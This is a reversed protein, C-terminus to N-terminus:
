YLKASQYSLSNVMEKWEDSYDVVKFGYAGPACSRVLKLKLEASMGDGVKLVCIGMDGPRLNSEGTAKLGNLSADIIKLPVVKGKSLTLTGQCHVPFRIESRERVRGTVRPLPLHEKLDTQHFLHSLLELEYDDLHVLPTSGGFFLRCLDTDIGGHFARSFKTKPFHFGDHQTETYYRYLDRDAGKGSYIKRYRSHAAKIDLVEGLAPNGEVFDYKKTTFKLRKFLLIAEYFPAHRPNVAAFLYDLGLYKDAYEWMFKTLPFLVRGPSRRYDRAVALASIEACRHARPFLSRRPCLKDIPLGFAGEQVISLTGITQDGHKAIIVTTTPLLHYKTVRMKLMQPRMLGADVYASHLLRFASAFEEPTEAAKLVLDGSSTPVTM